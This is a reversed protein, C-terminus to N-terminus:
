SGRELFRVLEAMRVRLDGKPQTRESSSAQHRAFVYGAARYGIEEPLDDWFADNSVLRGAYTSLQGIALERLHNPFKGDPL